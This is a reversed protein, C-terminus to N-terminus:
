ENNKNFIKFVEIKFDVDEYIKDNLGIKMWKQPAHFNINLLFFHKNKRYLITELNANQHLEFASIIEYVSLKKEFTLPELYNVGGFVKVVIYDRKYKVNQSIKKEFFNNILFIIGGGLSLLILSSILTKKRLM